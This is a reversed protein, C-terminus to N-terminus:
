ETRLAAMPDIRAARRAPLYCALLAVAALLVPMAVFTVPDTVAVGYLQARIMPALGFAGTLGLALAVAVVRVGRGLVLRVVQARRAGLAMRIGVERTRQAVAVSMVGYVGVAALLLALLAFASTLLMTFRPAALDDAVLSEMSRVKWVPQDPDVSWIAARVKGAFADPDGDVRAAVTNFIGPAQLMPQYVQATPPERLTLQKVDGVVGVVTVWTDPPGLLRLRRGLATQGPWTRRALAENVIAVPPADARDRADFDRGAVLRMGMTAVLGDSITNQQAAPAKTTTLDGQSETAYQVGGWNGSLPMSRIFGASRVGPVARIASLASTMFQSIREPTAYKVAPLRFEGTLMEATAFGPKV